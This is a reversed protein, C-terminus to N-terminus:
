GGGGEGGIVGEYRKPEHRLREREDRSLVALRKAKDCDLCRLMVEGLRETTMWKHGLPWRWFCRVSAWSIRASKLGGSAFLVDRLSPELERRADSDPPSLEIARSILNAAGPLDGRARARLGASGLRKAADDALRSGSEGVLGLEVRCRHAQELHYGLMEEYESAREGVKDELWTAFREHLHARDEKPLSAYAADRLLQHRFRFAEEGAFSTSEPKLLDKEVLTPLCDVIAARDAEPSLQLVADRHFVKGEVSGRELVARETVGLREIRAALLAQITPPVAIRALDGAVDWSSNHRRLLGEDVLMTVLEEVFLPNGEAAGSIRSRTQDPLESTGLLGEALRECEDDSLPGLRIITANPRTQMWSPRLDLLEPRAICLLLIPSDELETVVYEVLDLFTPEAWQIDDFVVVLPRRSALSEFFRGIAWFHARHEIVGEALGLVELVREIILDADAETQLLAKIRDHAAEAPEDASLGAAESITEKIPWFTIGEGYPLCRGRVAVTDDLGRALFEEVLRSKGMGAAGVVTFLRCAADRGVLSSAELLLELEHDRGVFPSDPRRMAGQTSAAVALLRFAPGTEGKGKLARPEVPEVTVADRVLRYTPQGVLIEDPRAVQELRAAVNVADGTAFAQGSAADGAVVEGTNVGIHCRITVGLERELQANLSGLAERMENAAVVARLADDEHLVPIGFVAMVADGIFKEVTGGHREVVRRMEDFYRGMVRRLAEPDLRQALESSGTVDAFVITVRKRMERRAHTEAVLPAGCALCFRAIELNAQGCDSCRPM